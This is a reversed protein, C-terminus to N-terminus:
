LYHFVFYESNKLAERLLGYSQSDELEDESDTMNSNANKEASHAAKENQIDENESDSSVRCM